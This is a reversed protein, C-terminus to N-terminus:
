PRGYGMQLFTIGLADDHFGIGADKGATEDAFPAVLVVLGRLLSGLLECGPAINEPNEALFCWLDAAETDIRRITKAVVRTGIIEVGEQAGDLGSPCPSLAFVAETRGLPDIMQFSPNSVRGQLAVGPM